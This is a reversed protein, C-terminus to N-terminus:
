AGPASFVTAVACTLSTGGSNVLLRRAVVGPCAGASLGSVGPGLAIITGAAEMGPIDPLKPRVLYTGRLFALDGFNVGMVANHVLVTGPGPEPRPVEEAVVVEPGGLRHFRIAKMLGQAATM